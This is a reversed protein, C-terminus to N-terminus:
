PWSSSTTPAAVGGPRSAHRRCPQFCSAWLTGIIAIVVLLEVLTFANRRRTGRGGGGQRNMALQVAATQRDPITHM